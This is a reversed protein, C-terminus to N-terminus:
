FLGAASSASARLDRAAIAHSGHRRVLGFGKGGAVTSYQGLDDRGLRGADRSDHDEIGGCPWPSRPQVGDVGRRGDDHCPSRFYRGLDPPAADDDSQGPARNRNCIM